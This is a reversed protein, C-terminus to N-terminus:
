ELSAVDNILQQQAVAASQQAELQMRGIPVTSHTQTKGIFATGRRPPNVYLSQSMAFFVPDVSGLAMVQAPTLVGSFRRYQDVVPLGDADYWIRDGPLIAVSPGPPPSYRREIDAEKGEVLLAGPTGPGGVPRVKYKIPDRLLAVLISA